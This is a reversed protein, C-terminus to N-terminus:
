RAPLARWLLAGVWPQYTTLPLSAPSSLPPPVMIPYWPPSAPLERAEVRINHAIDDVALLAALFAPWDDERAMALTVSGATAACGRIAALAAHLAGHAVALRDTGPPPASGGAFYPSRLAEHISPRRAPDRQLLEGVLAWGAHGVTGPPPLPPLAGAADCVAGRGPNWTFLRGALLEALM